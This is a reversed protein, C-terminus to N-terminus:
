ADPGRAPWYQARIERKLIKGVASRPLDDVLKVLRPRKHRALQGLCFEVLEEPTAHMGEKLAVHAAPVEGLREDPIGFAACERVAPHRYLAQEIEAPFVNEGGQVIVDKSRDVLVLFGDPDLYGLDGTWLWGDGSRYAAETAEPDKYYGLMVHEGRTVVEGTEGRALRAGDPARIELEVNFVPRGVSHAKAPLDGPRRATLPCAESAGYNDTLAVGPLAAAIREILATPMAMGAHNIKKLSRLRVPDFSPHKVLDNIQTPVLLAATVGHREVSAIFHEVDWRPALVATAGCMIAAHFWVYLGATHFLPTTMAAVDREELGFEIIAALASQGRARHSVLVGKPLGTTGGTFNVGLPDTEELPIEPPTAAAGDIFDEFRMAGAPAVGAGAGAVLITELAPAQALANALPPVLPAEILIARAETLALIRALDKSVARTSGHAVVVGRRAAGYFAIAYEPRNSCLIVLVDGKRLGRAALANAFRDAAGDLSAYDLREDGFLLAARKPLRRATRRLIDGALFSM